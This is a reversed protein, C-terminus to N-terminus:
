DNPEEEITLHGRKALQRVVNEVDFSEIYEGNDDKGCEIAVSGCEIVPFPTPVHASTDNYSAMYGVGNYSGSYTDEKIGDSDVALRAADGASYSAITTLLADCVVRKVQRSHPRVHPLQVHHSEGTRGEMGRVVDDATFPGLREAEGSVWWDDLDIDDLDSYLIGTHYCRVLEFPEPDTVYPCTHRLLYLGPETPVDM